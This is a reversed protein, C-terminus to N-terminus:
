APTEVAVGNSPDTLTAVPAADVDAVMGPTVVDADPDISTAQMPMLELESLVVM